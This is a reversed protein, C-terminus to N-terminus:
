SEKGFSVLVESEQESNSSKNIHTGLVKTGQLEQNLIEHIKETKYEYM